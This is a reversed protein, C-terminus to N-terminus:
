KLQIVQGDSLEVSAQEVEFQLTGQKARARLNLTASGKPGSAPIQYSISEKGTQEVQSPMTFTIPEGLAERVEASEAAMKKADIVAQNNFALSYSFYVLYAVGGCCLLSLVGFCGLFGWVAWIKSNNSSSPNTLEGFEPGPFNSM